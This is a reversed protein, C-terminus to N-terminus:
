GNFTRSVKRKYFALGIFFGFIGSAVIHLITAGIFRLNNNIFVLNLHKTSLSGFDFLAFESASGILFLTNELAAFGLAATILYVMADIPENYNRNLLAIWRAAIYKVLEEIIVIATLALFLAVGTSSLATIIHTNSILIKEFYLAVPVAVMGGIFTAILLPKPEPNRKDERLFFWLWILPPLGGGLVAIGLIIIDHISM